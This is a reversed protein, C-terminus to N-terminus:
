SEVLEGDFGTAVTTGNAPTDLKVATVEALICYLIQAGFIATQNPLQFGYCHGLTQKALGSPIGLGGQQKIFTARWHSLNCDIQLGRQSLTQWTKMCGFTFLEM